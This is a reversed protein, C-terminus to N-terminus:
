RVGESFWSPNTHFWEGWAQQITFADGTEPFVVQLEADPVSDWVLGMRHGVANVAPWDRLLSAPKVEIYAPVEVVVGTDPRDPGDIPRFALGQVKFDPLYQGTPGAFCAPEYDWALALADLRQAFTAELRSRMRVGSYYTTRAALTSRTGAM